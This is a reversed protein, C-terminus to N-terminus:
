RRRTPPAGARTASRWGWTRTELVGLEDVHQEILEAWRYLVKARQIPTRTSWGEYAQAGARVARDADDPGGEAVTRFVEGDAPNVTEFTRGEASAVREGDILLGEVSSM